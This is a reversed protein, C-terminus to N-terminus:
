NHHVTIKNKTFINLIFDDHKEVYKPTFDSL